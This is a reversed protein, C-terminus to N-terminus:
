TSPPPSRAAEAQGSAGGEGPVCPPRVYCSRGPCCVDPAVPAEDPGLVEHSRICFYIRHEPGEDVLGRQAYRPDTYMQQHRLHVCTVKLHIPGNM